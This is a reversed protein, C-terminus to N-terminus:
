KRKKGRAPAEEVLAFSLKHQVPDVRDV